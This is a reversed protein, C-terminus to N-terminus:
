IFLTILHFAIPFASLALGAIALGRPMVRLGKISNVLGSISFIWVIWLMFSDYLFSLMIVSILGLIFGKNGRKNTKAAPAQHQQQCYQNTNRIEDM